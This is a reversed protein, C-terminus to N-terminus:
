DDHLVVAQARRNARGASGVDTYGREIRAVERSVFEYFSRRNLLGTLPDTISAEKLRTNLEELQENREALEITRAEVEIELNRRALNVRRQNARLAVALYFLLLVSVLVYSTLAPLSRWTPPKVQFALSLTNTAEPHSPRYARVLFRYNGPELNTYAARRELQPDIWGGDFGELKYLFRTRGPANTQPTAFRFEVHRWDGELAFTLSSRQM